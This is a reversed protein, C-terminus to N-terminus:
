IQIPVTRNYPNREGFAVHSPQKKVAKKFDVLIKGVVRGAGLVAAIENSTYSPV